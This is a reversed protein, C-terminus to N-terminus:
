KKAGNEFAAYMKMLRLPKACVNEFAAYMKMPRLPKVRVNEFAAYIKLLRRYKSCAGINQCACINQFPALIGDDTWSWICHKEM